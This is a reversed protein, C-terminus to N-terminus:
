VSISIHFSGDHRKYMCEEFILVSQKVWYKAFSCMAISLVDNFETIKIKNILPSFISFDPM